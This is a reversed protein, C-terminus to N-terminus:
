RVHSAAAGLRFANRKEIRAILMLAFPDPLCGAMMGEEVDEFAKQLEFLRSQLRRRMQGGSGSLKRFRKASLKM